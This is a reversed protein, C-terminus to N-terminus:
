DCYRTCMTEITDTDRRICIYTGDICLGDQTDGDCSCIGYDNIIGSPAGPSGGTGPYLSGGAGNAVPRKRVGLGQCRSPPPSFWCSASPHRGQDRMQTASRSWPALPTHCTCIYAHIHTHINCM